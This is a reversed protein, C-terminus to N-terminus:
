APRANQTAEACFCGSVRDSVPEEDDTDSNNKNEAPNLVTKSGLGKAGNKGDPPYSIRAIISMAASQSETGRILEDNGCVTAKVSQQCNTADIANIDDTSTM